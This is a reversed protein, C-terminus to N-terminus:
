ISSRSWLGKLGEGFLGSPKTLRLNDYLGQILDQKTLSM